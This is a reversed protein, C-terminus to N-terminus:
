SERNTIGEQVGDNTPTKIIGIYEFSSDSRDIDDGSARGRKEINKYAHECYYKAAYEYLKERDDWKKLEPGEYQCYLGYTGDDDCNYSTTGKGAHMPPKNIKIDLSMGGRNWLGFPIRSRFIFWKKVSVEDLQYDNGRFKFHIPQYNEFQKDKNFQVRKGFLLDIPRFYWYWGHGSEMPKTGWFIRCEKQFWYFGYQKEEGWKWWKPRPVTLYLSFFFMGFVFSFTRSDEWDMEVSLKCAPGSCLQYRFNCNHHKDYFWGRVNFLKNENDEKKLNQYRHLM